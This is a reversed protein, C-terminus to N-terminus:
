DEIASYVISRLYRGFLYVQAGLMLQSMFVVALEDRPSIFFATWAAGAWAYEGVSGSIQTKAPDLLVSFGLGFGIGPMPVGLGPTSMSVIDKGGPLHNMAMLQLTRPGIIRRGNLEGGNLLMKCFRMYDPGTSTLGGVGSFFPSSRAFPSNAPSDLLVCSPEGRGGLRYCASFRELKAEPASFSTDVMGLPQFVREDMFRDLPQGSLIECLYGVMDTALGYIWQTGPEAELPVQGLKAAMDKLTEGDGRLTFIGARRHLQQVPTMHADLEASLGYLAPMGGTHMLLDRITMERSPDRLEYKDATGGAFVKLGKLEPIFKSAPDDLQFRGEEYLTMLGLSVLPKTMSYIRFITDAQMPKGAEADMSGYADSHIVKGRRAIMTLVGPIRGADVQGHSWATLHGLRKSSIQVDEPEAEIAFKAAAM